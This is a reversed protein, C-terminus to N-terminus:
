RSTASASPGPPLCAVLAADDRDYDAQTLHGNTLEGAMWKHKAHYQARTLKGAVCLKSKHIVGAVSTRAWHALRQDRATIAIEVDADFGLEAPITAPINFQATRHPAINQAQSQVTRDGAISVELEVSATETGPNGVQCRLDVQEGADLEPQSASRDPIACSVDLGHATTPAAIPIRRQAVPRSAGMIESFELILMTDPATEWSPVSLRLEGQKSNGAQITGFAMRQGHLNTVGSGTIAQVEYAPGPGHNTVKVILTSEGGARLTGDSVEFRTIELNPPRKDAIAREAAQRLRQAEIPSPMWLSQSIPWPQAFMAALDDLQDLDSDRWKVRFSLHGADTWVGPVQSRWPTTAIVHIMSLRVLDCPVADRSAVGNVGHVELRELTCPQSLELSLEGDPSLAFRGRLDVHTKFPVWPPDPPLATRMGTACGILYCVCYSAILIRM